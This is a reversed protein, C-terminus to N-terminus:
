AAHSVKISLYAAVQRGVADLVALAEEEPLGAEIEYEASMTPRTPWEEHTAGHASVLADAYALCCLATYEDNLWPTEMHRVSDVFLSPLQWAEMASAALVNISQGYLHKFAEGFSCSTRHAFHVVRQYSEPSVKALLPVGIDHLIGAAFIEDASWRSAFASRLNRRVYVYRALMAVYLSHEAFRNGNFRSGSDHILEHMAFSITISRLSRVGIRMVAARVTTVPEVAGLTVANSARLVNASLGPDGALVRELELITADGSDIMRTVQVASEPLQPLSRSRRFLIQLRELDTDM